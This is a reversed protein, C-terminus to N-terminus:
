LLSLRRVARFKASRSRPNEAIEAPTPMLPKPTLLEFPAHQAVKGTLLDKVPTVLARFTHKVLRDELSHYSLVGMRGGPKLLVPGQALLVQLAELERNVAIRLSQFIQPLVAKTRFGYVSEAVARLTTTTPISQGALREALRGSQRLEGYSRFIDTLEEVSARAILQTASEGARRDYRLDLPAEVRFTFGRSPDDLHVSSVGLDAFLIDVLPLRLEPLKMFNVHKLDQQCSCDALRERAQELNESDADLGIFSGKEGIRECFARAHGGLGLTVDLVTEGKQPKLVDLVTNQLVPVHHPADPM